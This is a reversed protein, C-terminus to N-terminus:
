GGIQCMNKSIYNGDELHHALSKQAISSLVKEKLLTEDELVDKLDIEINSHLCLKLKGTATIRIRNCDSCFKHSIPNIIGVRGKASPIKYYLATSSKEDKGCEILGPVKDLVIQNSVYRDSAWESATGVPMLEIFRVDITEDLTLNVFNEIEDDNFGRILVVNLKIPSLGQIKAEEIGALVAKLNGGQTIEAYKKKDLTDLSINVRDLGADKLKTAYQQLLVGNTTLSFDEIGEIKGVRTVLEILDKRILPEGGTLRVKTVGLSTFVKVVREIQEISLISTVNAKSVSNNPMCYRCMLNCHDTISIRLYNINRQYSDKM